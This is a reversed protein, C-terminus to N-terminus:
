QPGRALWDDIQTVGAVAEERRRTAEARATREAEPTGLRDYAGRAYAQPWATEPLFPRAQREARIELETLRADLRYQRAFAAQEAANQRQVETRFRHQDAMTVSYPAPWTQAAVPAAIMVFLATLTIRM